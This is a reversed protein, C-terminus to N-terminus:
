SSAWDQLYQRMKLAGAEGLPEDEFFGDASMEELRRDRFSNLKESSKGTAKWSDAIACIILFTALQPALFEEDTQGPRNDHRISGARNRLVSRFGKATGAPAGGAELADALAFLASM